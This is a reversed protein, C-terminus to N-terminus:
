FCNEHNITRASIKWVSNLPPRAVAHASEKISCIRVNGCSSAIVAGTIAAILENEDTDPTVQVVPAVEQITPSVANDVKRAKHKAVLSRAFKSAFMMILMLGVIVIFVISFAIVSMILGGKLSVFEM